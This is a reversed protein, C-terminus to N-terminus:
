VRDGRGDDRGVVGVDWGALRGDLCCNLSRVEIGTICDMVLGLWCGCAFYHEDELGVHLSMELGDALGVYQGLLWRDSLSETRGNACGM